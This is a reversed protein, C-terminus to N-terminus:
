LHKKHLPGLEGIGKGLREERNKEGLWNPARRHQGVLGLRHLAVGVKGGGLFDSRESEPM